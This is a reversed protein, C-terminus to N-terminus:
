WLCGFRLVEGAQSGGRLFEPSLDVEQSSSYVPSTYANARGLRVGYM